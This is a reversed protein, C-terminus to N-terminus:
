FQGNQQHAIIWTCACKIFHQNFIFFAILPGSHFFHHVSSSCTYGNVLWIQHVVLSVMRSSWMVLRRTHFRSVDLVLQLTIQRTDLVTVKKTIIYSILMIGTCKMEAGDMNDLTQLWLNHACCLSWPTSVAYLHHTYIYSSEKMIWLDALAVHAGSRARCKYPSSFTFCVIYLSEHTNQFYESFYSTCTTGKSINISSKWKIITWLLFLIETNM